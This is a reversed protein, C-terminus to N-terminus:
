APMGVVEHLYGVLRFVSQIAEAFESAIRIQDDGGYLLRVSSEGSQLEDPRNQQQHRYQEHKAAMQEEISRVHTSAGM